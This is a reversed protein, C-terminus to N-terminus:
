KIGQQRHCLEVKQEKSKTSIKHQNPLKHQPQPTALIRYHVNMEDGLVEQEGM